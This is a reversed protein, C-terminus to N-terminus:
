KSLKMLYKEDVDLLNMASEISLGDEGAVFLLGELVAVLNM